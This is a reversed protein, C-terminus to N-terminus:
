SYYFTVLCIRKELPFGALFWKICNKLRWYGWIRGTACLHRWAALCGGCSPKLSPSSYERQCDWVHFHTRRLALFRLPDAVQALREFKQYCWLSYNWWLKLGFHCLKGGLDRAGERLEYCSNWKKGQLFGSCFASIAEKCKACETGQQLCSNWSLLCLLM